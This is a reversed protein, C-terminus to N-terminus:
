VNWGEQNINDDYGDRIVDWGEQRINGDWSEGFVYGEGENPSKSKFHKNSM